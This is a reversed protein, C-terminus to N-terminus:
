FNNWIFNINGTTSINENSMNIKQINNYKNM